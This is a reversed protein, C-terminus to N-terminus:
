RWCTLIQVGVYSLRDPVMCLNVVLCLTTSPKGQCRVVLLPVIEFVTLRSRFSTQAQNPGTACDTMVGKVSKLARLSKWRCM